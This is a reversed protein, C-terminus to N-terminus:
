RSQRQLLRRCPLSFGEGTLLDLIRNCTSRGPFPELREALIYWLFPSAAVKSRVRACQWAMIKPRVLELKGVRRRDDHVLAGDLSSEQSSTKSCEAAVDGTM